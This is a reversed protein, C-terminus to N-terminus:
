MFLQREIGLIRILVFSLQLLCHVHNHARCNSQTYDFYVLWIVTYEEM